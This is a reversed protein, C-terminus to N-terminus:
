KLTYPESTLINEINIINIRSCFHYSNDEKNWVICNNSYVLSDAICGIHSSPLSINVAIVEFIDDSTGISEKELKGNRLSLTYSGDVFVVKSGIRINAPIIPLILDSKKM